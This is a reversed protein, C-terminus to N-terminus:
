PLIRVSVNARVVGKPVDGGRAVDRADFSAGERALVVVLQAEGPAAGVLDGAKGRIEVSGTASTRVSAQAVTVNSGRVGYVAVRLPGTVETPPRLTVTLPADRTALQTESASSGESRMTDQGGNAVVSYAPLELASGPRGPHALALMVAAAAALAAVGAFRARRSFSVPGPAFSPKSALTLRVPVKAERQQLALIQAVTGEEFGAGLPADLATGTQAEDARRAAARLEKLLREDNM